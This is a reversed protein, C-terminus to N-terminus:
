ARRATREPTVLDGDPSAVLSQHPRREEDGEKNTLRQVHRSAGYPSVRIRFAFSPVKVEGEFEDGRRMAMRGFAAVVGIGVLLLAASGIALWTAGAGM